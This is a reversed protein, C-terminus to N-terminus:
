NVSLITVIKGGCCFTPCARPDDTVTYLICLRAGEVQYQVPLSYCQYLFPDGDFQVGFTGCNYYQHVTITKCSGRNKRCQLSGAMLVSCILILLFHRMSLPKHYSLLMQIKAAFFFV